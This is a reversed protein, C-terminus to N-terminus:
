LPYCKRYRGLQTLTQNANTIMSQTDPLTKGLLEKRQRTDTNRLKLQAIIEDRKWDSAAPVQALLGQDTVSRFINDISSRTDADLPLTNLYDTMETQSFVPKMVLDKIRDYADPIGHSRLKNQVVSSAIQPGSRYIEAEIEPISPNYQKIDATLRELSIISLMIPHFGERKTISRRLDGQERYAVMMKKIPTIMGAIIEQLAEASESFFPNSKQPMASSGSVGKKNEKQVIGRSAYIWNDTAAKQLVTGVNVMTDLMRSLAANSCDQDNGHEVYQLGFTGEVINRYIRDQGVDGFCAMFDADTGIAGAIKGDPRFMTDELLPAAHLRIQEALNAYIHGLTTLQADQGHTEAICTNHLYEESKTKLVEVLRSLAATWQGIAKMYLNGTVNTNVDSSTRCFHTITRMLKEDLGAQQARITAWTNAAVIDHNTKREITKIALYDKTRFNRYIDRLATKQSHDLKRIGMKVAQPNDHLLDTLGIAYEIAFTMRGQVLAQESSIDKFADVYRNYRGTTIEESDGRDLATDIRSKEKRRGQFTQDPINLEELLRKLHDEEFGKDQLLAISGDSFQHETKLNNIVQDLTSEM